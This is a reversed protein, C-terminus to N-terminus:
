SVKPPPKLTASPDEDGPAESPSATDRSRSAAVEGSDAHPNKQTAAEAEEQAETAADIMGRGVRFLTKLGEPFTPVNNYDLNHMDLADPASLVPDSQWMRRLAQRRLDEPVGKQMFMSYDSDKGLSEISPLQALDIDEPKKGQEEAIQAAPPSAVPVPVSTAATPPPAAEDRSAQQKLRSWRGAFGEEQEADKSM